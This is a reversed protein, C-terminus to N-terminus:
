VDVRNGRVYVEIRRGAIMHRDGTRAEFGGRYLRYIGVEAREDESLREAQRRAQELEM